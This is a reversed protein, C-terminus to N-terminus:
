SAVCRNNLRARQSFIPTSQKRKSCEDVFHFVIDRMLSLRNCIVKRIEKNGKM